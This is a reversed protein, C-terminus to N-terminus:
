IDPFNGNQSPTHARPAPPSRYRAYPPRRLHTATPVVGPHRGSVTDARCGAPGAREHGTDKGLNIALTDCSVGPQWEM